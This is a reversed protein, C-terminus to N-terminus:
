KGKSYLEKLVLVTEGGNSGNEVRIVRPHNAYEERIMDKLETGYTQGHIVLIKYVGKEAKRLESNLIIKAQYKNKGHLDIRRTGSYM